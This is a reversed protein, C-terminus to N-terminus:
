SQVVDCRITNPRRSMSPSRSRLSSSSHGSCNFRANWGRQHKKTSATPLPVHVLPVRPVHVLPDGPRPNPQQPLARPPPQSSFVSPPAKKASPPMVETQTMMKTTPPPPNTFPTVIPLPVSLDLPHNTGTGSFRRRARQRRRRLYFLLFGIGVLAFILAIVIGVIAGKAIDHKPSVTAPVIGSSDTSAGNGGAVGTASSASGSSRTMSSVNTGGSSSPQNLPATSSPSAGTSSQSGATNSLQSAANSPQSAPSSTGTSSQSQSGDVSSGSVAAVLNIEDGWLAPGPGVTPSDTGTYALTQYVGLSTDPPVVMTVTGSLQTGANVLQADIVNEEPGEPVIYLSFQSPNATLNDQAWEFVATGGAPLTSPSTMNISLGAAGAAWMAMIIWLSACPMGRGFTFLM